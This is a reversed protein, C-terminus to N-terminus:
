NFVGVVGVPISHVPIAKIVGSWALSPWTTDVRLNETAIELKSLVLQIAISFGTTHFKSDLVIVNNSTSYLRSNRLFRTSNMLSLDVTEMDFVLKDVDNPILDKFLVLEQLQVKTILKYNDFFYTGYKKLLPNHSIDLRRKTPLKSPEILIADKFSTFLLAAASFSHKDLLDDYGSDLAVSFAVTWAQKLPPFDYNFYHQSSDLLKASIFDAQM